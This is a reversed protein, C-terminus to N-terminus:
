INSILSYLENLFSFPIEQIWDQSFNKIFINDYINKKLIYPHENNELLLYISFELRENKIDNKYTYISKKLIDYSEFSDGFEQLKDLIHDRCINYKDIDNIYYDNVLNNIQTVLRNYKEGIETKKPLLLTKNKSVYKKKRRPMNKGRVHDKDM